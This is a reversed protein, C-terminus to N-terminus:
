RLNLNTNTIVLTLTGAVPVTHRVANPLTFFFQRFTGDLSVSRTLTGILAAGNFLEVRIDRDGNPGQANLWLEVPIDVDDIELPAVVAPSPEYSTSAGAGFKVSAKGVPSVRGVSGKGLYLAKTGSSPAASSSQPTLAIALAIFAAIYM